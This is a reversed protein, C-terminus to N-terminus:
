ESLSAMYARRREILTDVYNQMPNSIDAPAMPVTPRVDTREDVVVVALSVAVATAAVAAVLAPMSRSRSPFDAPPNTLVQANM